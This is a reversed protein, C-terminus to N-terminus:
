MCTSHMGFSALFDYMCSPVRLSVGNDNDIGIDEQVKRSKRERERREGFGLYAVSRWSHELFSYTDLLILSLLLYLSSWTLVSM